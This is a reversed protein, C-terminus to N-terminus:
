QILMVEVGFPCTITFTENLTDTANKIEEANPKKWAKREFNDFFSKGAKIAM